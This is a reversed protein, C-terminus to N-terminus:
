EIGIMRAVEDLTYTTPNKRYEEMAEEYCKLDYEDEIKELVAQRIMESLSVNNFEAYRKFLEADEKTLRLSISM